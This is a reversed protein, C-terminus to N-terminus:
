WLEQNLEVVADQGNVRLYVTLYLTQASRDLSREVGSVTVEPLAALAERAMALLTLEDARNLDLGALESGLATDYAFAGKKVTLRILARQILERLGSIMEPSGDQGMVMDGDAILHDM